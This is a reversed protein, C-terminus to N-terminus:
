SYRTRKHGSSTLTTPPPEPPIIVGTTPARRRQRLLADPFILAWDTAVSNPTQHSVEEIDDMVQPSSPRSAPPMSEERVTARRPPM